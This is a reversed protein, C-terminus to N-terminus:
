NLILSYTERPDKFPCCPVQVTMSEDDTEEKHLPKHNPDDPFRFHKLWFSRDFSKLFNYELPHNKQFDEDIEMLESVFTDLALHTKFVIETETRNFKKRFASDMKFVLDCKGKSRMDKLFEAMPGQYLKDKSVGIAKLVSDVFDQCNGYRGTGGHDKYFMITNWRIIVDALKSVLVDLSDDLVISGLDATILSATSVCKRPVVLASNNYELKWPGILLASHFMGLEPFTDDFASVVPSLLRRIARKGKTHSVESVIFKIKIKANKMNVVDPNNEEDLIDLENDDEEERNVVTGVDTSALNNSVTSKLASGSSQDSVQGMMDMTLKKTEAWDTSLYTKILEEKVCLADRFKELLARNSKLKASYIENTLLKQEVIKKMEDLPPLPISFVDEESSTSNNSNGYSTNNNEIQNIDDEGDKKSHKSKHAGM